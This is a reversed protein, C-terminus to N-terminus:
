KKYFLRYLRMYRPYANDYFWINNKISYNGERKQTRLHKGLRRRLARIENEHNGEKKLQDIYDICFYVYADLTAKYANKYGNKKFYDAQVMLAGFVELKKPKWSSNTTGEVNITYHYLPEDIFVLKECKFVALHTTLTDEFIRVDPFRVDEWLYKKFIKGWPCVVNSVHGCYFSETDMVTAKYNNEDLDPMPRKISDYNCVALDLSNKVACNYLMELYKPHVWDDSDAFVIWESDSNKFVYDLGMNRATGQGGNEKHLSIINSYENAYKDCLSGSNDTSGDDILILEFDRFTHVLFSDVCRQLYKEANYVPVIVSIDAM